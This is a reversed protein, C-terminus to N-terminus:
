SFSLQDIYPHYKLSRALFFSQGLCLSVAISVDVHHGIRSLIAAATLGAIGAGVIGINLIVGTGNDFLQPKDHQTSHM